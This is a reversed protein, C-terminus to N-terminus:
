PCIYSGLLRGMKPPPTYFPPIYTIFSCFDSHMLYEIEFSYFDSHMLHEVENFQHFYVSALILWLFARSIINIDDLISM